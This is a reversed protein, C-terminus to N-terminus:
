LLSLGRLEQIPEEFSCSGFSLVFSGRAELIQTRSVRAERWTVGDDTFCFANADDAELIRVIDKKAVGSRAFVAAVLVNLFGFMTAKSSETEYTLPYRGRCPHHLGATAKFPVHQEACAVIFDAVEVPSPFADATVGGARIKANAGVARVAQLLTPVDGVPALEVFVRIASPLAEVVAGVEAAAAPTEGVLKMEVSDVCATAGNTENFGRVLRSDELAVTGLLATVRWSTGSSRQSQRIAVFEELRSAPVVFRGLAWAYPGRMYSAYNAVAQDMALRAPPFLGAYDIAEALLARVTSDPTM